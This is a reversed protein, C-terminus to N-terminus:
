GGSDLANSARMVREMFFDVMWEWLQLACGFKWTLFSRSARVFDLEVYGNGVIAHLIDISVFPNVQVLSCDVSTM